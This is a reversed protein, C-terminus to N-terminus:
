SRALLDAERKAQAYAQAAQQWDADTRQVTDEDLYLQFAEWVQHIRTM